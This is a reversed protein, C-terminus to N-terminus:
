AGLTLTEYQDQAIAQLGTTFELIVRSLEAPSTISHIVQVLDPALILPLAWPDGAALMDALEPIEAALRAVVDQGQKM